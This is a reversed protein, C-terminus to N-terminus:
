LHTAQSRLRSPFGKGCVNAEELVDVLHAIGPVIFANDAKYAKLRLLLAFPLHNRKVLLFGLTDGSIGERVQEM